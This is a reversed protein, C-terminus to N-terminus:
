AVMQSSGHKKNDPTLLAALMGVIAPINEPANIRVYRVLHAMDSPTLEAPVKATIGLAFLSSSVNLGAQQLRALLQDRVAIWERASLKLLARRVQDRLRDPDATAPDFTRPDFREFQLDDKEDNEKNTKARSRM